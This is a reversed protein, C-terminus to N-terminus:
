SQPDFGFVRLEQDCRCAKAIRAAWVVAEERSSLELVIFGGNLPPTWPYGGDVVRGDASVRVPPVNREVIKTQAEALRGPDSKQPRVGNPGDIVCAPHGGGTQRRGGANAGLVTLACPEVM